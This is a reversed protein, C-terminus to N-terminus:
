RILFESVIVDDHERKTDLRLVDGTRTIRVHWYFRDELETKNLLPLWIVFKQFPIVLITAESGCGFTVFAKSYSELM